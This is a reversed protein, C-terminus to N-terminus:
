GKLVREGRYGPDPAATISPEEVSIVVDGLYIFDGPVIGCRVVRLGNLRTGNTSGLDSLVWAGDRPEIRAHYRSIKPDILAVDNDTERGLTLGQSLAIVRGAANGTAVRIVVPMGPVYALACEKPTRVRSRSQEVGYNSSLPPLPPGSTGQSSMEVERDLPRLYFRLRHRGIEIVSGDALVADRVALGDVVLGAIPSAIRIIPQPKLLLSAHRRQVSLDGFLPVDALEDRGLLNENRYLVISRGEQAGTLFTLWATRLSQEVAATSLGIALGLLSYGLFRSLTGSPSSVAVWEFLAGGVMGGFAGGLLGHLMRRDSRSILGPAIGLCAGFVCWGVARAPLTFVGPDSGDTLSGFVLSSLFFGVVGLLAGGVAGLSGRFLMRLGSRTGAEQALVLAAVVLGGFTIGVTLYSNLSEGGHLEEAAIRQPEMVLFALLGALCGAVGQTAVAAYPFAREEAGAGRQAHV